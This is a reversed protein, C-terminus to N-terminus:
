RNLFINRVLGRFTVNLILCVNVVKQLEVYYLKIWWAFMLQLGISLGNHFGAPVTVAPISNVHAFTHWTISQVTLSANSIGYAYAKIRINLSLVATAFDLNFWDKLRWFFRAYPEDYTCLVQQARIYDHGKIQNVVGVMIRSQPTFIHRKKTHRTSFNLLGSCITIHHTM